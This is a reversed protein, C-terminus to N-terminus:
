NWSSPLTHSLGITKDRYKLVISLSQSLTKDCMQNLTLQEVTTHWTGGNACWLKIAEDDNALLAELMLHEHNGLVFDAKLQTLYEFLEPTESGRDIIDGLCILRDKSPTFNHQNLAKKLGTLSGDLDGVVFVRIDSEVEITRQVEVVQIAKAGIKLMSIGQGAKSLFM